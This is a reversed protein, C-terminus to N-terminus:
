RQHNRFPTTNWINTLSGDPAVEEGRSWARLLGPAHVVYHDIVDAISRALEFSRRSLATGGRVALAATLREAGVVGREVVDLVTWVSREPLWPDPDGPPHPLSTGAADFSPGAIARGETAAALGDVVGALFPLRVNAAIGRGGADTALAIRQRLWRAVGGTQVVVPIPALPDAPAHALLDAVLADALVELDPGRHMTLGPSPAGASAGGSPGGTIPGSTAM